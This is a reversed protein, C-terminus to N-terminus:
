LSCKGVVAVIVFVVVVIGVILGVDPRQAVMTPESGICVNGDRSQCALSLFLELETQISTTYVSKIDLAQLCFIWSVACKASSPSILCLVAQGTCGGDM